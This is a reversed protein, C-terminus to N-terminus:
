CDVRFVVASSPSTFLLVLLLTHGSAFLVHNMTMLVFLMLCGAM